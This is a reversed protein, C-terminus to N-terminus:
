VLWASELPVLGSYCVTVYLNKMIDKLYQFMLCFISLVWNSSLCLLFSWVIARREPGLTRMAETAYGQLGAINQETVLLM